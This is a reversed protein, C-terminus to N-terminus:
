DQLARQTCAPCIGHSPPNPMIESLLKEFSIWDGNAPDKYNKCYMCITTMDPAPTAVEREIAIFYELEGDPNKLPSINLDVWYPHGDAHYNLITGSFSEHNRVAYGIQSVTEHSTNPGQLVSDPTKGVLETTRHGCLDTFWQNVWLVQGLSDTVVVPQQLNKSIQELTHRMM